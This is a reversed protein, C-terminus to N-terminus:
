HNGRELADLKQRYPKLARYYLWSALMASISCVIALSTGVHQPGGLIKDTVFAIITPALGLGCVSIMFLYLTSIVGRLRNPSGLQLSSAVMAQPLAYFFNIFAAIVLTMTYSNAFPLAVCGLTVMLCCIAASRLAADRYGMRLLLKGFSPGLVIGLAGFTLVQAGYQVGVTSPDAGYHRILYAPMWTPLGYIVIGLLGMGCFVRLFFAKDTWIYQAIEKITFSRDDVAKESFSSRVPEKVSFMSAALILGPFGVVIFTIQWPEFNALLPIWNALDGAFAIVLGGAVLALGAGLSPGLLFISMARPLKQKTFYDAILSWAVPALSAEAAGVGARAFFLQWFSDATGCLVTCISWSTIGFILINRRHGTDAWRGFLPGCIIYASMFAFGQLFSVEVDSLMLDLKIPDVLLNLVQRDIFAVTYAFTLLFLVYWTYHSDKKIAYGRTQPSAIGTSIISDSQEM